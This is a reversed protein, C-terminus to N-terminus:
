RRLTGKIRAVEGNVSVKRIGEPLASVVDSGSV